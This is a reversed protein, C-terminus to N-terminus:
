VITKTKSIHRRRIIAVFLWSVPFGALIAAVVSHPLWLDYSRWAGGRSFLIRGFARSERSLDESETLYVWRQEHPAIKLRWNMAHYTITGCSSSVERFDLNEVDGFYLRDEIRYSRVWLVCVAVCLILSLASLVTFLRRFM